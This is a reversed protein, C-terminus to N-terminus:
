AQRRAFERHGDNVWRHARQPDLADLLQELVRGGVLMDEARTKGHTLQDFTNVLVLFEPDHLELEVTVTETEFGMQDYLETESDIGHESKLAALADATARSIEEHLTQIAQATEELEDGPKIMESTPRQPEDLNDSATQTDDAM